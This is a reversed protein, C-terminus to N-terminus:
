LFIEINETYKVINERRQYYLLQRATREGTQQPGDFLAAQQQKYLNVSFLKAIYVIQKM